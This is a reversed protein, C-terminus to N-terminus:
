HPEMAVLDLGCFSTVQIQCSWTGACQRVRICTFRDPEGFCKWFEIMKDCVLVKDEETVLKLGAPCVPRDSFTVRASLLDTLPRTFGTVSVGDPPPYGYETLYAAPDRMVTDWTMSDSAAKQLVDMVAPSLYGTLEETIKAALAPDTNSGTTVVFPSALGCEDSAAVVPTVALLLLLMSVCSRM